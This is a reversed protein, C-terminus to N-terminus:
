SSATDAANIIRIWGAIKGDTFMRYDGDIVDGIDVDSEAAKIDPSITYRTRDDAKVTYTHTNPAEFVSITYLTYGEEDVTIREVTGGFDVTRSITHYHVAMIVLFALFLLGCAPLIYRKISRKM